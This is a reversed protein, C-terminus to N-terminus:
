HFSNTFNESENSTLNMSLYFHLKMEAKGKLILKSIILTPITLKILNVNQGQQHLPYLGEQLVAELISSNVTVWIHKKNLHEKINM